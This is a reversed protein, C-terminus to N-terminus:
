GRGREFGGRGRFGGGGRSMGNNDMQPSENSFYPRFLPVAFPTCDFRKFIPLLKVTVLRHKVDFATRYFIDRAKKVQNEKNNVSYHFIYSIIEKM